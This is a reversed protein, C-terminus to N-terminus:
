GRAQRAGGQLAQLLAGPRDSIVTDVGVRALRRAEQPDNVTWTGLFAGRAHVREVFASGVLSHEPHVGAAGLWRFGPAGGVGRQRAHVLWAVPVPGGRALLAVLRPDFSSFVLTRSADPHGAVLELCRRVLRRPRSVDRKLEINLRQGYARAWALVDALAPAREGRGVDVRQLEDQGLSEVDRGDRGASVRALTRDHLVVVADDATLRVDLEVGDAGERRALEFAAITNEPAAHRAGRHGLLIPREAGRAWAHSAPM